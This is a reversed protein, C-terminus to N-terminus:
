LGSTFLIVPEDTRWVVVAGRSRETLFHLLLKPLGNDLRVAVSRGLSRRFTPNSHSRKLSLPGDIPFFLLEREGRISRESENGECVKPGPVSPQKEMGGLEEEIESREQTSCRQEILLRFVPSANMQRTSRCAGMGASTGSEDVCPTSTGLVCRKASGSALTRPSIETSSDTSKFGSASTVIM